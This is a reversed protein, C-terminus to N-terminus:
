LSSMLLFFELVTILRRLYIECNVASLKLTLKIILFNNRQSLTSPPPMKSTRGLCKVGWAGSSPIAKGLVVTEIYRQLRVDDEQPFYVEAGAEGISYLREYGEKM